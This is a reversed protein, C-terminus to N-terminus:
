KTWPPVLWQCISENNSRRQTGLGGQHHRKIVTLQLPDMCVSEEHDYTAVTEWKQRERETLPANTM